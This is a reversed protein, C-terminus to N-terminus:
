AQRRKEKQENRRFREYEAQSGNAADALTKPATGKGGTGVPTLPKPANTLKKTKTESTEPTLRAEIKGMERAALIPPLKCIRAYEERNKALEYALEPGNESRIIIDQVTPSVTIDDVSEIVEDFDETKESFAAKKELYTSVLKKQETQLKDTEEEIRRAMDKQDVKWDTLAEVYEAHTEFKEPTPKDSTEPSSTKLPTPTKTDTPGAIKMAQSKWYEIEREKDAVRANLKDVRKQFGGKKKPKTGDTETEDKPETDKDSEHDSTEGDEKAETESTESDESETKQESTKAEPASHESHAAAKETEEEIPKPAEPSTQAPKPENSRVQITM